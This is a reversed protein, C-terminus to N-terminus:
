VLHPRPDLSRPSPSSDNMGECLWFEQLVAMGAPALCPQQAVAPAPPLSPRPTVQGLFSLRPTERGQGGGLSAECLSTPGPQTM